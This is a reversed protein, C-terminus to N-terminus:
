LNANRLGRVQRGGGGGRELINKINFKYKNKDYLRLMGVLGHERQVTENWQAVSLHM